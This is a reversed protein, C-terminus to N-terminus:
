REKPFDKYMGICLDCACVYIFTKNNFNCNNYKMSKLQLFVSLTIHELPISIYTYKTM